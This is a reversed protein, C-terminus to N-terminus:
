GAPPSRRRRPHSGAPDRRRTSASRGPRARSRTRSRRAARCACPDRNSGDARSTTLVQSSCSSVPDEARVALLPVRPRDGSRDHAAPRAGGELPRALEDVRDLGRDRGGSAEALAVGGLPHELRQANGDVVLEAGKLRSGAATEISGGPPRMATILKWESSSRITLRNKAASALPQVQGGSHGIEDAARARAAARAALRDPRRGGLGGLIRTGSRAAERRPSPRQHRRERLTGTRGGGLESGGPPRDGAADEPDDHEGREERADDRHVHEHELQVDPRSSSVALSGLEAGVVGLEACSELAAAVRADCSICLPVPAGRRRDSWSSRRAAPRSCRAAFRRIRSSRPTKASTKADRESPRHPDLGHVARRVLRHRRPLM